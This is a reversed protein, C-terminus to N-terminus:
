HGFGSRPDRTSLSPDLADLQRLLLNIAEIELSVRHAKEEYEEALDKLELYQQILLDRTKQMEEVRLNQEKM